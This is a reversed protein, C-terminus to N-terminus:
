NSELRKKVFGVAGGVVPLHAYFNEGSDWFDQHFEVKGEHDFRIQSIGISHVPKGGDLAPAAVIMTWRVYYSGNSKAVDDITVQYNTMTGSTKVFYAEIEPAGHHVTLTDDLWADAAYVKRTNERIYNVDGIGQLFSTFREVAAKEGLSGPELGTVKEMQSRYNAVDAASNNPATCSNLLLFIAVVAVILGAVFTSIPHTLLSATMHTNKAGCRFDRLPLDTVGPERIRIGTNSNRFISFCECLWIWPSGFDATQRLSWRTATRAM